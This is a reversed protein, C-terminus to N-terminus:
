GGTSVWADFDYAHIAWVRLSVLKPVVPYAYRKWCELCVTVREQRSSAVIRSSANSSAFAVRKQLSDNKSGDRGFGWLGLGNRFSRSRSLKNSTLREKLAM